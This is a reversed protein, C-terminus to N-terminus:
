ITTLTILEADTLATNYVRLDKVKGNFRNQANPESFRLNTLGIPTNGSTDTGVLAGNLYFKFENLKWTVAIKVVDVQSLIPTSMNAVLAGNSAVLYTIKNSTNSYFIRIYNSTGSSIAINRGVSTFALASGEFYLVGETSNFTTADGAGTVSDALRTAITGSTPIYSTAYPLAELQFGVMRFGKSSQSTSKYVGNYNLASSSSVRTTSVRWVNGGCDKYKIDEYSIAGGLYFYFDGSSTNTESAFPKSLDDMIVYVSFTCETLAPVIGMRRRREVSNDGFKVCDSFGNSWSFAEYSINSDNNEVGTPESNVVLNTSQPELLLSPCGGDTYDLRPIDTDETVEKISINTITIDNDIASTRGFVAKTGDAEFYKTHVGVTTVMSTDVASNFKLGGAISETIEYTLKYQKGITLVSVQAISGATPTHM